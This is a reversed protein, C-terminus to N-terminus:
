RGGFRHEWGVMLLHPGGDRFDHGIDNTNEHGGRQYTITMRNRTSLLVEIGGGYRWFPGLYSEDESMVGAGGRALLSLRPRIPVRVDVGGDGGFYRLGVLGGGELSVLGREGLVGFGRIAGGPYRDHGRHNDSWGVEVRLGKRPPQDPNHQAWAALPLTALLLIM